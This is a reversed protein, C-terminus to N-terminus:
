GPNSLSFRNLKAHTADDNGNGLSTWLQIYQPNTGGRKAPDDERPEKNKMEGVDQRMENTIKANIIEYLQFIQIPSDESTENVAEVFAMDAKIKDQNAERDLLKEPESVSSTRGSLQSVPFNFRYHFYLYDGQQADQVPWVLSDMINAKTPACIYQNEDMARAILIPIDEKKYGHSVLMNYVALTNKPTHPLRGNRRDDEYQGCVLLARRKVEREGVEEDGLKNAAMDKSQLFAPARQWFFSRAQQWLPLRAGNGKLIEARMSDGQRIGEALQKWLEDAMRQCHPNSLSKPRISYKLDKLNNLHKNGPLRPRLGGNKMEQISSALLLM